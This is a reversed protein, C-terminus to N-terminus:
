SKYNEYRAVLAKAVREDTQQSALIKAQELKYSLWAQHAQEPTNFCGVTVQKGTLVEMCSARYTRGKYFDVGIPLDRKGELYSHIFKNVSQDVFVCTDPGYLKNGPFLIDKDLEKGQWDQTEMWSKFASSYKWEPFIHCGRYTANKELFKQNFCRELVHSWRKWFPCVWTQRKIPSGSERYGIIEETKVKYGLDNIGFGQALRM